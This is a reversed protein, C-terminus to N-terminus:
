RVIARKRYSVDVLRVGLKKQELYRLVPPLRGLQREIQEPGLRVAFPQPEVQLVSAGSDEVTLSTLHMMTAVPSTSYVRVLELARRVEPQRLSMGPALGPQRQLRLQPLQSDQQPMFPRLVMGEVDIVMRQWGSVAVLFAFREQVAVLLTHPFRRRITVTKVYPHRELRAGMRALDLQWLTVESPLALLYIVDRRTLTTNGVIDVTRLRFYAADRMLRYITTGGWVLGICLGGGMLCKGLLWARSLWRKFRRQQTAPLASSM